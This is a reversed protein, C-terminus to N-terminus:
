SLRGFVISELGGFPLFNTLVQFAPDIADNYGYPPLPHAPIAYPLQSAPLSYGDWHMQSHMQSPGGQMMARRATFADSGATTKCQGELHPFLSFFCYLLLCCVISQLVYCKMRLLHLTSMQQLKQPRPPSHMLPLAQQTFNQTFQTAPQQMAYGASSMGVPMAYRGNGVYLM